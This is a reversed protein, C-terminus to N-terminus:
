PPDRTTEGAWGIPHDRLHTFRDALAAIPAAPLLDTLATRRRFRLNKLVKFKLIERWGRTKRASAPTFGTERLALELTAPEFFSIHIEPTVYSWQTLRDAFPAANGTTLFLLGGDRLLGRIRRLEALPDLTHELVEIATVVDFRRRESDIEPPTLIPIGHARAREAIAGEEFGVAEATTNERVYRVLGGNGCGFDLWRVGALGGLLQEVTRTVGSWEYRRITRGPHELEFAYDVLPDAGKGAYYRDDYIRAFDTWPDAIFGYRCATCRRLSYDRNSYSGHVAGLAVTPGGCVRCPPAPQPDM